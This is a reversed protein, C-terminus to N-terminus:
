WSACDCSRLILSLLNVYDSQPHLFLWSSLILICRVSIIYSSMCHMWNPFILIRSLGKTYKIASEKGWITYCRTTLTVLHIVAQFPHRLFCDQGLNLYWWLIQKSVFGKSFRYSRGTEWIHFKRAVVRTSRNTKQSTVIYLRTSPYRHKFLVLHYWRWSPPVYRGCLMTGFGLPSFGEYLSTIHSLLTRGSVWFWVNEVQRIWNLFNIIQPFTVPKELM